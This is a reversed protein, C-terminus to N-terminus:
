MAVHQTGAGTSSSMEVSERLSLEMKHFGMMTWFGCLKKARFAKTFIDTVQDQTNIYVVSALM